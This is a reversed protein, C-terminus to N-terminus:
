HPKLLLYLREELVAPSMPAEASGHRHTGVIFIPADPARLHIIDLWWILDQLQTLPRESDEAELKADAAALASGDEALRSADIALREKEVAVKEAAVLLHRCM